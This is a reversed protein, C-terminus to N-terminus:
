RTLGDIEVEERAFLAVRQEDGGRAFFVVTGGLFSNLLAGASGSLSELAACPTSSSSSAVGLLNMEREEGGLCDLQGGM